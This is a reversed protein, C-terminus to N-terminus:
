QRVLCPNEPYADSTDIAGDGDFDCDASPCAGYIGEPVAYLFSRDGFNYTVPQIECECVVM